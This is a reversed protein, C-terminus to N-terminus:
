CGLGIYKKSWKPPFHPWFMYIIVKRFKYISDSKDNILSLEIKM